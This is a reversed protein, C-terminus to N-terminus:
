VKQGLVNQYATLTLRGVRDWSYNQRIRERLGGDTSHTLASQVAIRISDLDGPECYWAADGFYESATGRSTTVIKCGALAAELSALGPTEYWSPLVHAEAAAYVSSLEHQDMTDIFHVHCRTPENRCERYYPYDDVPGVFVLDLDFSNLARILNLQNKRRCVRGVCLIFKRHKYKRRFREPNGYYFIRDAGNPVVQYPAITGFDRILLEAEGVGNPLLYDVERVLFLRLGRTRQWWDLYEQDRRSHTKMLFEAADWYIPSLVVPVRAARAQKFLAMTGEVPIINFLHVLDIDKFSKIEGAAMEVEVGLRVLAEGTKRQQVADGGLVTASTARNGLIVRMM